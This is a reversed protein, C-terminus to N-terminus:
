QPGADGGGGLNWGGMIDRTATPSATLLPEVGALLTIATVRGPDSGQTTSVMIADGPKLESIPMSPLSDLMQSLDGGRGGRGGPGGAMGARGAAAAPADQEQTGGPAYRRALMRAAQEPLKRMTSDADIKISLPKKTALDKVTLEGTQANIATVTAAIQRFSGSVIREAQISTGDGSKNGLVRLQDGVKIAKFDSPKADSFRASDLSYRHYSTKESPQVVFTHAGSKITVTKAESDIAMVTGTAGRTKWDEQGKQQLTAVDNKSMVLVATAVWAKPDPPTAGIIVARDGASLSSLEIKIGKKPDTEGPPIRLILTRETTTVALDDGKDSRLSIQRVDANVGSVTGSVQARTAAAPADQAPASAVGAVALIAAVAISYNAQKGQPMQGEKKM